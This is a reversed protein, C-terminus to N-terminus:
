PVAVPDSCTIGRGAPQCVSVRGATRDIIYLVGDTVVYDRLLGSSQAQASMVTIAAGAGIAASLAAVIALKMM